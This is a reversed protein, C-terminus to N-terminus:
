IFELTKEKLMGLCISNSSCKGTFEFNGISVAHKKGLLNIAFDVVLNTFKDRFPIGRSKRNV